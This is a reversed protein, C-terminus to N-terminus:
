KSNTNESVFETSEHYFIRGSKKRSGMLIVCSIMPALANIQRDVQYYRKFHM